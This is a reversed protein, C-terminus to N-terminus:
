TSIFCWGSDFRQCGLGKAQPFSGWLVNCHFFKLTAVAEAAAAELELGVQSVNLLDILHTSHVMHFKGM